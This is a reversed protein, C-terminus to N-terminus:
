CMSTSICFPLKVVLLISSNAVIQVSKVYCSHSDSVPGQHYNFGKARKFDNSDDSNVYFGNYNFDSFLWVLFCKLNVTM